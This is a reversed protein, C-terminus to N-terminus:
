WALLEATSSCHAETEFEPRCTRKRPLTSWLAPARWDTNKRAFAQALPLPSDGSGAERQSFGACASV